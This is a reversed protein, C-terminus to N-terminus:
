YGRKLDSKCHNFSEQLEKEEGPRRVMHGTAATTPTDDPAQGRTWPGWDPSVKVAKAHADTCMMSWPRSPKYAWLTPFPEPPRRVAGVIASVAAGEGIENQKKEYATAALSM